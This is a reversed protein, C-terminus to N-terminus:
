RISFQGAGEGGSGSGGPEAPHAAMIRNESQSPGPSDRRGSNACAAREDDDHGGRRRLPCKARGGFQSASAVCFGKVRARRRHYLSACSTRGISTAPRASITPQFNRDFGRSERGEDTISHQGLLEISLAADIVLQIRLVVGGDELHFRVVCSPGGPPKADNKNIAM